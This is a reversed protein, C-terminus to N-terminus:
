GFEAAPTRVGRMWGALVASMPIGSPAGGGAADLVGGRIGGHGAAETDMFELQTRTLSLDAATTTPAVADVVPVGVDALM